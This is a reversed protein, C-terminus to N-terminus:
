DQVLNNGSEDTLQNSSEDTLNNEVPPPSSGSSPENMQLSLSIGMEM